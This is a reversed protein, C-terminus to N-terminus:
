LPAAVPRTKLDAVQRWADGLARKLLHLWTSPIVTRAGWPNM